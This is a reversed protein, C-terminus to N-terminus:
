KLYKVASDSISTMKGHSKFQAVLLKLFMTEDKTFWKNFLVTKVRKVLVADEERVLLLVEEELVEVLIYSVNNADRYAVRM